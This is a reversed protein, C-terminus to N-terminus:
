IRDVGDILYLLVAFTAIGLVIALADMELNV